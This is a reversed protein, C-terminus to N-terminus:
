RNPRPSEAEDRRRSVYDELGSFVCTNDLHDLIHIKHIFLAVLCNLRQKTKFIVVILILHYGTCGTDTLSLELLRLHEIHNFLSDERILNHEQLDLSRNSTLM